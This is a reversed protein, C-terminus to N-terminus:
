PSVTPRPGQPGAAPSSGLDRVPEQLASLAEVARQKGEETVHTYIETSRVSAHGLCEQVTRLDTVSLLRTAFTHRLMHPTVPRGLAAKGAVGVVRELQRVTLPGRGRLNTLVSMVDARCGLRGRIEWLVALVQRLRASVPVLRERGGKAVEPRVRVARLWEDGWRIDVWALGAVEGVRLGAEGMLLLATLDRLRRWVRHPFGSTSPELGRWERTRGSSNVFGILQFWEAESLLKVSAM